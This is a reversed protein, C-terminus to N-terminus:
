RCVAVAIGQPDIGFFFSFLLLIGWALLEEGTLDAVEGSEDRIILDSKMVEKFYESKSFVVRYLLFLNYLSTLVLMCFAVFLCLPIHVQAIAIYGLIESIFNCTFPFGMNSFVSLTFCFKFWRMNVLDQGSFYLINRTKIRDYLIGAGLFLGASTFAHGFLGLVCSFYGLKTLTFLCVVGFNMHVISSYAIIKKIDVSRVACSCSYIISLLAVTWVIERLEYCGLPFFRTVRLLGYLGLKLLLAALIISGVTPSEVHAEPLWLHFPCVPIKVAFGLFLLLVITSQTRENLVCVLSVDYSGGHLYLYFLGSFVFVSSGITYLAFYYAAHVRRGRSGWLLIILFMPIVLCEFFIVFIFFNTVTFAAITFFKVCLLLEVWLKYNHLGRPAYIFCVLFIIATLLYLYVSLGDMVFLEHFFELSTNKILSVNTPDCSSESCMILKERTAYFFGTLHRGYHSVVFAAHALVGASFCWVVLHLQNMDSFLPVLCMVVIILILVILPTHRIDIFLEWFAAVKSMKLSPFMWYVFGPGWVQERLTEDSLWRLWIYFSVLITTVFYAALQILIWFLELLDRLM